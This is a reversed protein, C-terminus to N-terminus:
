LCGLLGKSIIHINPTHLWLMRNPLFMSVIKTYGLSWIKEANSNKYEILHNLYAILWRSWCFLRTSTNARKTNTCLFVLQLAERTPLKLLYTHGFVWHRDHKKSGSICVWVVQSAVFVSGVGNEAVAHIHNPVSLYACALEDSQTQTGIHDITLQMEIIRNYELSGLLHSDSRVKPLDLRKFLLERM